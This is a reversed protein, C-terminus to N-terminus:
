YHGDLCTTVGGPVRAFHGPGNAQDLSEQGQLPAGRGPAAEEEQRRRPLLPRRIEGFDEPIRGILTPPVVCAQLSLGFVKYTYTHINIYKYIYTNTNEYLWIKFYIIIYIYRYPRISTCAHTCMYEHTCTYARIDYSSQIILAFVYMYTCYTCTHTHTGIHM